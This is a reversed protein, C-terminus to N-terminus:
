ATLLGFVAIVDALAIVDHQDCAATLFVLRFRFKCGSAAAQALVYWVFVCVCLSCECALWLGAKM